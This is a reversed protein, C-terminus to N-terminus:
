HDTKDEQAVIVAATIGAAAAATSGVAVVKWSVQGATTDVTGGGSSIQDVCPVYRGVNDVIFKGEADVKKNDVCDGQPKATAAAELVLTKGEPVTVNSAVKLAGQLATIYIKNAETAMTFRSDAAVPQVAIGRVSGAFSNSTKVTAAGMLVRVADKAYVIQSAKHVLISNGPATITGAGDSTRIQDGAFVTTSRTVEAGNVTVHGNGHFVASPSAAAVPYVAILVVLVCSLLKRM